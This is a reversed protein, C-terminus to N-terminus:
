HSDEDAAQKELEALESKLRAVYTALRQEDESSMPREIFRTREFEPGAEVIVYTTYTAKQLNFRHARLKRTLAVKRTRNRQKEETLKLWAEVTVDDDDNIGLNRRALQRAMRVARGAESPELELQVGREFVALAARRPASWCNHSERTDTNGGYVEPWNGRSRSWRTRVRGNILSTAARCRLDDTKPGSPRVSLGESLAVKYANLWTEALDPLANKFKTLRSTM